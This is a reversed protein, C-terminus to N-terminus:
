SARTGAAARRRHAALLAVLGALAAVTAPEPIPTVYGLSNITAGAAYGSFTIGSLQGSTLGGSSTGFRLSDSGSTYNLVTLSGSWTQGSSDGFVLAASGSGFDITAGAAQVAVTGASESFGDLEFRGGNFTLGVGGGVQHSAGLRLIDTGSGNGLVITGAGVAEAGGTKALVLTGANIRTTGSLTNSSGGSLTMSGAGGLTFNGSGLFQGSYSTATAQAVTLTHGSGFDIAGGSGALSGFTQGTNLLGLVGGNVTVDLSSALAATSRINLTGAAVSLGGTFTSIAGLEWTGTDAKAVAVTGAGDVIAGGLTNAATSTGGLTLTKAGAGTATLASSLTLAGSGSADLTAGGTTGALNVVRNSSHGTGTYRLTAATAGSGLDITGNGVTTPAGLASASSLNALSAISLTGEQVTTKGSFTSAGALHWTGAGSKVLSTLNTGSNNVIAGQITNAATSTGTLTLTKSGAGTATFASSLTLAGSGSADLTAGGTTGALNVVRNSSHGAGIYRLIAATTTNGLAITGNVDSTPAGLASAASLDALTDVVLTGAQVATAGTFTNAGTLALTGTGAKTLGGGTSSLVASVALDTAASTSDNVTFTRTAAGLAVNGSITSGLPNGTATFTVNGGLTLTGAGTAVHAASLASAGTGGGLSLATAAANFGNLDLTATGAAVTSAVTVAVNPLSSSSAIRLTGNGVTVAGTFTNAGSLVWTGSGSKLLSTASSSNPIAGQVENADGSTGTLTLTKAGAGTATLASSLVLAGTGSADLTAGGTTGALDVVRDSTHGTGGYRLTAATTGTGIGITGVAASGPNGLSSAGAGVNGLSTIELVGGQVLTQGTYTNAGTLALRGAGTKTLGGTGSVVASVALDTAATTSDGVNFTRTAAGLALQGAVTAGLPNGTASYTVNGGLTLTGADTEVAAGSTTTAGGLTLSAVTANRGELDLTATVGATSGSVTVAVNPLAGAAGLRLIGANVTTPGTFTNAGSLVLTGTGAKTLGATNSLVGGFTTIGSNIVTATRTTTGLNMNGSLTLNETGGVTYNAAVTVANTLTRPGGGAQLTGGSLSLTSTGLASNSGAVLTGASLTTTGSYTNAGSLVLTGTGAKALGATNSLVGSFTTVGTNSVTATRQTTGLNINGSLTLDATGGIAYSATVSVANALTRATDDARLTGGALTLTGTGFAANNGAVLTGASLTTAGTYTNAGSLEWSGTGSKAVATASAGNAIVGQFENAGTNTGAFTLTKIGTGTVTPNATLVLAGTGDNQLTAGGTTGALAIVKDSTEGAGTYLLTGATTTAGLSVTGGTGLPSDAGANGVVATSVIGNQVALAGTFTNTGSLVLTGLGTKTLGGTGSIVGSIAADNAATGNNVAITRAAAGLSFASTWTVTNDAAASSLTLTGGAPLFSATTGWVEGGALGVSLAGGTAAFGGGSAGFQVQGAGTGLPRSFTGSTALVGGNLLLNAASITGAGTLTLTGGTLTTAGTYGSAATLILNGAGAKTFARAGGTENLGGSFTTNATNSVTITRNANLTVPGSLTLAAAGGVTFNSNAAVANTITRTASASLTGAGSVTLGGTGLASDHGLVLTGASLTTGGSYTNPGSLTWTGTGAKTVSGTGSITGSVASAGAGTGNLTLAFGNTDVAGSIVLAGTSSTTFPSAAGLRVGLSVTLTSNDQNVIGSTGVTLVGTGSLTFSGAGNTFRVGAVSRNVALAPQSTPTATAFNAINTTLDDAPAFGGTWNAPTAFDTGTNAWSIAIQAAVPATPGLLAAVLAALALSRRVGNRRTRTAPM